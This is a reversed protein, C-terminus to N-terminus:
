EGTGYGSRGKLMTSPLYLGDSERSKFQENIRHPGTNVRPLTSLSVAGYRLADAAHDEGDTDLDEPNLEDHIQDPLTRILNRCEPSIQLMPLGDPGKSMYERCKQWGPVRANNAKSMVIRNTLVDQMLKAIPEGGGEKEVEKGFIEPPSWLAEYEEEDPSLMLIQAALEKPHLRNAYFERYVYVRGSPTVEWWLICFKSAFGWDMSLFKRHHKEPVRPKALVSMGPRIDWVDSFFQGEFVEWDGFRLARYKKDGLIKLRNGYTPDNLFLSPNDELLAPIFGVTKKEDEMYWTTKAKLKAPDIYRRKVWGHGVNGPNSASRVIAKIGPISSRVRTTLYGFQFETFHTLEDFAMDVYEASQHDYVDAEKNCFGFQEVSGNKFLWQHKQGNYRAGVKPYINRARFLLSKELDPLKRRFTIGLSGPINMRRKLKFLLIAESKGGGAAGGYFLDEIDDSNIYKEQKPWINCHLKGDLIRVSPTHAIEQM